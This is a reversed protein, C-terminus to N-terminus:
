RLIASIDNIWDKNHRWWWWQADEVHYFWRRVRCSRLSGWSPPYSLGRAIVNSHLNTAWVFDSDLDSLPQCARGTSGIAWSCCVLLCSSALRGAASSRFHWLFGSGPGSAHFFVSTAAQFSDAVKLRALRTCGLWGPEPPFLATACQIYGYTGTYLIYQYTGEWDPSFDAKGLIYWNTCTYVLRYLIQFIWVSMYPWICSNYTHQYMRCVSKACRILWYIGTCVATYTKGFNCVSHCSLM